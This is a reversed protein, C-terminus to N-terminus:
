KENRQMVTVAKSAKYRTSVQSSTLFGLGSGLVGATCAELKWTIKHHELQNKDGGWCLKIVGICDRCLELTGQVGAWPQLM